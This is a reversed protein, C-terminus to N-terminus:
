VGNYEVTSWGYKVTSCNYEAQVESYELKPTESKGGQSQYEGDSGWAPWAKSAQLGALM